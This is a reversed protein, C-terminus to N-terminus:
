ADVRGAHRTDHFEGDITCAAGDHSSRGFASCDLSEMRLCYVPGAPASGACQRAVRAADHGRRRRGRRDRRDRRNPRRGASGRRCGPVRDGTDVDTEPDAITDSAGARRRRAVVRAVVLLLVAALVSGTIVLRTRGAAELEDIRRIVRDSAASARELDGEALASRAEILDSTSDGGIGGIRALFSDARDHADYAAAVSEAAVLQDALTALASKRDTIFARRDLAPVSGDFTALAATLETTTSRLRTADAVLDATVSALEVPAEDYANQDLGPTELGLEALLAELEMRYGVLDIAAQLHDDLQAAIRDLERAENQYATEIAPTTTLGLPGIVDILQDRTDLVQNADSLAASADDFQWGAMPRRVAEPPTWSGGRETLAAYAILVEARRDLLEAQADTVVLERYIQELGRAEGIQESLDLFQQWGTLAGTPTEGNEDPYARRRAIVAELVDALRDSGIEDVLRRIVSFSNVYGYTETGDFGDDPQPNWETLPFPEIEFEDLREFEPQPLPEGIREVARAAVEEALGESLWRDTVRSGNLWAHALEHLILQSELDEAVEILNRQTFYYGGYGDLYPTSTEIITTTDTNPWPAGILEELIPVGTAVREGTFEAWADDNPWALIDFKAAGVVTQRRTLQEDDRATFAVFFDDPSEIATASLTSVGNATTTELPSGRHEVNWGEPIEIVVDALGADGFAVALFSVYAINVRTFSDSRPSDGLLSYTVEITNTQQYRLDSLFDVELLVFDDETILTFDADSGNVRVALSTANTAIPLVVGTFFYFEVRGGGLDKDPTIATMEYTAAVHIAPGAPDVRYVTSSVLRSGDAAIAIGDPTTVVVLSTLMLAVLALRLPIRLCSAPARPIRMRDVTAGM